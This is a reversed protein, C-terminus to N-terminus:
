AHPAAAEALAARIAAITEEVGGRAPFGAARAHGGGGFGSAIRSADIASRTRMSAKYQGPETEKLLVAVEAERVARLLNIMDEAEDLRTGGLDKLELWSWVLGPPGAELRARALVNGLAHLYGFPASEFIENAVQTHDVGRERLEAAVRLTSPATSSYQFRGTDTVIGTYLCTAEEATPVGGMRTLLEYALECSSAAGPEVLNIDGFGENTAHHDLDIGTAAALFVPEVLDLRSRQACDVALFVEPAAPPDGGILEQGPLFAYQSPVRLQAQGWGTWVRKGLRRLFLGMGLMSGLADGDPFVHCAVAVASAGQLAEVARDWEKEPISGPGRM